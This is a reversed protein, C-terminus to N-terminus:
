SRGPWTPFPKARSRRAPSWPRWAGVRISTSPDDKLGCAARSGSSVCGKYFEAKLFEEM